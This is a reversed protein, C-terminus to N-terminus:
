YLPAMGAYAGDRGRIIDDESPPDYISDVFDGDPGTSFLDFDTNIPQGYATRTRSVNYVYNNGWPDLLSGRGLDALSAPLSAKETVWAAIERELGRIEGVTRMTKAHERFRTYSAMATIAIILTITVVVLLEVLTFGGQDSAAPRLARQKNRPTSSDPQRNTLM